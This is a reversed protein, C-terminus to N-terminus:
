HQIIKRNQREVLGNSAPHYVMINTKTTGYEKCIPELIQNYFETGNDSLLRKPINFKYFVEDIM